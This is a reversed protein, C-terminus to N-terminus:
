LKASEEYLYNQNVWGTIKGYEVPVWRTRGVKVGAGTVKIGIADPPISGVTAAALNPKSRVNLVDKPSVNFVAYSADTKLVRTTPPSKRGTKLNIEVWGEPPASRPPDAGTSNIRFYYIKQGDRAWEVASQLIYDWRATIKRKGGGDAKFVFGINDNCEFGCAIVLFHRRTPSYRVERLSMFGDKQADLLVQGDLTLQDRAENISARAIQASVMPAAAIQPTLVCFAIPLPLSLFRRIMREQCIRNRRNITSETSAGSYDAGRNGAFRIRFVYFIERFIVSLV